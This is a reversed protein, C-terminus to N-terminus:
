CQVYVEACWVQNEELLVLGHQVTFFESNVSTPSKLKVSINQVFEIGSDVSDSAIRSVISNQLTEM